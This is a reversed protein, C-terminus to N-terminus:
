LPIYPYKIRALYLGCAPASTGALGRNKGEVIQKLEDLDTRGKGVDILTGVIARVMNRLFRDATIVFRLRNKNQVWYAESLDCIFTKVDTNVKSFSKFNRYSCLMRGAQNMKEVNLHGQIYASQDKLFPAKQQHIHYWYTRSTADFRAHANHAVNLCRYVAIDHPLMQNFRFVANQPLVDPGDFHLYYESAHVGTDTRGCGVVELEPTRLITRLVKTIAEQVSIADNQMQWGHYATGKYAIQLFYRQLIFVFTTLLFRISFRVTRNM